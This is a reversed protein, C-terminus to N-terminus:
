TMKFNWKATFAIFDIVLLNLLYTKYSFDTLSIEKFNEKKKLDTYPYYKIIQSYAWYETKNHGISNRIQNDLLDRYYSKLGPVKYLEDKKSGNKLNYYSTLNQCSSGKSFTNSGGNTNYNYFALYIISTRALLEFADKFKDKLDDFSFTSIMIDTGFNEEFGKGYSLAIVPLYSEIDKIFSIAIQLGNIFEKEVNIYDKIDLDIKSLNEKDNQIKNITSKYLLRIPYSYEYSSPIIKDIFQRLVKNVLYTSFELTEPHPGKIDILFSKEIEKCVFHWNKVRFLEVISELKSIKNERFEKFILYNDRFLSIKELSLFITSASYPSFSFSGLGGMNTLHKLIPLETSISIIEGDLSGDCGYKANEFKMSFDPAKQYIEGKIINNCEPCGIRVSANEVFGGQVKIILNKNCVDCIIHNRFNM